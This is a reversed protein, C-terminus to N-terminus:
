KALLGRTVEKTNRDVVITVFGGGFVAKKRPIRFQVVVSSEKVQTDAVYYRYKDGVVEKLSETALHIYEVTEAPVKSQLNLLEIAQDDYETPPSEAATATSAIIMTFVIIRLM